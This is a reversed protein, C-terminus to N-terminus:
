KKRMQDLLVAILIVAGKIINQTYSEVGMLNLGNSIVGIILAGLLTGLITGRGGSLSTGGVVVAAIADLEYLQGAKPDGSFLRSALILGSIASLLGCLSYIAVKMSRINIGSLRAAEENGGIAYTYRGFKTHKALYWAGGIILLMILIPVPLILYGGGLFYFPEPLNGVPRGGCILFVLGRFGIMTSLTVIFPPVKFRAIIFGNFAGILIGAVLGGAIALPINGHTANLIIAAAVGTFAVISGVSLDIGGSIIVFTMGVSIITIMSIQRAINLTNALSTFGAKNCVVAFILYIVIFGILIGFEDPLKKKM